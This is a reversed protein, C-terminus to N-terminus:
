ESARISLPDVRSVVARVRCMAGPGTFYVNSRYVNASGM